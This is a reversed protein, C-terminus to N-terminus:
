FGEGKLRFLLRVTKVAPKYIGFGMSFFVASARYSFPVRSMRMYKKRLPRFETRYQRFLAKDYPGYEAMVDAVWLITTALLGSGADALEPSAGALEDRIERATEVMRRHEEGFSRHMASQGRQIYHYSACDTVAMSKVRRFVDFNFRLDELIRIDGRFRVGDLLERRYLKNWVYGGVAGGALLECVASDHSYCVEKHPDSCAKPPTCKEESESIFHCVAVDSGHRNMLRMLNEIHDPNVYDDADAFTVYDGTAADIGANRASSVGGNLKHLVKIRKDSEALRDCIEPTDDTSGDDALIIELSGYTQRLLSDVCRPLFGGCNYVPVIISIAAMTSVTSEM